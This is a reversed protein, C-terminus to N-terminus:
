GLDLISMGDKLEARQVYLELMKVEAEGLTEKGTEYFCSSYKMRSGLMGKLVDTGVEYHQENAKNTEIAIPRERLLKVYSMKSDYAENLSKTAIESLRSALQRRIGLRILPHPLYGGDLIPNILADSMLYESLANM